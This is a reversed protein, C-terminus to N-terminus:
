LVTTSVGNSLEGSAIDVCQFWLTVGAANAPVLGFFIADGGGDATVAPLATIPNSLEATGYPTSTPGGGAASFAFVVSGNATCNSANLNGFFGAGLTPQALVPATPVPIRFAAVTSATDNLSRSNDQSNTGMVYGAYTILPSSYRNVRTGPSYAMVTRYANGPTRYGYSYWFAANGANGPDHHSGMNHGLEHGFSYYGTACGHNVVSFAQSAFAVSVNTMLNAIGCYQNNNCLLSVCDAAYQDRLPHVQDMNGDNTSRIHNLMTSMNTEVYGVMEASHALVVRQDVQSMSYGFNTESMALNIKANVGNVGGLSNKAQTTYAVLIDIDPNGNRNGVVVGSSADDPVHVAHQRTTGCCPMADEDVEVLRFVDNGAFDVQVLTTGWRLTGFMADAYVSFM